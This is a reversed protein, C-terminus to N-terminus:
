FITIKSESNESDHEFIGNNHDKENCLRGFIDFVQTESAPKSHCTTQQARDHISRHTQSYGEIESDAGPTSETSFAKRCESFSKISTLPM